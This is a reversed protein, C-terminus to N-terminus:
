KRARLSAALGALERNEPDHALAKAVIEVAERRRGMKSLLRAANGAAEASGEDWKLAQRYAEVAGRETGALVRINGLSNYDGSAERSGPRLSIAKQVLGEAKALAGREGNMARVGYIVGLNGWSEPYCSFKRLDEEFAAQAGLLDGGEYLLKGRHFVIRTNADDPMVRMASDLLESARQYGRGDQYALAWQFYCSRILPRLAFAAVAVALLWGLHRVGYRRNGGPIPGPPLLWLAPFLFVFASTPAVRLPFNFLAHVILGLTGARVGWDLPGGGPLFLLGVVAAAFLLAGPVGWESAAELFDDHAHVANV